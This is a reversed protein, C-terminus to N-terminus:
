RRSRTFRTSSSTRSSSCARLARDKSVRYYVVAHHVTVLACFVIADLVTWSLLYQGFVSPVARLTITPELAAAALACLGVHVTIFGIMGALQVLWNRARQEGGRVPFRKAMLMVLPTLLAWAYTFVLEAPLLKALSLPEGVLRSYFYREVSYLLAIITAVGFLILTFGVQRERVIASDVSRTLGFISYEGTQALSESAVPTRSQAYPRTPSSRHIDVDLLPSASM